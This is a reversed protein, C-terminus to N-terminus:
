CNCDRNNVPILLHDDILKQKALEFNEEKRWVKSVTEYEANLLDEAKVIGLLELKEFTKEFGELMRLPPGQVISIRGLGLLKEIVKPKQPFFHITDRRLIENNWSINMSGIRYYAM